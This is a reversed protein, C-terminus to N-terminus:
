KGFKGQLAKARMTRQKAANPDTIGQIINWAEIAAERSPYPKDILTPGRGQADAQAVLGVDVVMQLSGLRELFDVKKVPRLEFFKHMNLHEKACTAAVEAYTPDAIELRQCLQHVLPVGLAEHNYHHPLQDNPTVAKGLDHLLAAWVQVPTGDLDDARDVALLTHVFADGEPHWQPPQPRGKLAALEPPLCGAAEAALVAESPKECDTFGCLKNFFFDFFNEM